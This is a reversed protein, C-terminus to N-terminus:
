DFAKLETDIPIEHQLRTSTNKKLISSKKSTKPHPANTPSREDKM